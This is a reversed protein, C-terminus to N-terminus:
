DRQVPTRADASRRCVSIASFGWLLKEKLPECMAGDPDRRRGRRGSESPRVAETLQLLGM